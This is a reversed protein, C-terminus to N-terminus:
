RNNGRSCTPHSASNVRSSFKPMRPEVPDSCKATIENLRVRSRRSKVESIWTDMRDYVAEQVGLSFNRREM